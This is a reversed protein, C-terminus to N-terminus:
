DYELNKSFYRAKIVSNEHFSKGTEPPSVIKLESPSYKKYQYQYCIQMNRKFKGQNNTGVVIEKIKEM